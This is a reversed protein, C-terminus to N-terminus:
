ERNVLPSDANRMLYSPLNSAMANLQQADVLVEAAENLLAQEEPREFNPDHDPNQAEIQKEVEDWTKLPAQKKAVRRRNEIALRREELAQKENLRVKENLPSTNQAKVDALLKIQENLYRIDPNKAQRLKSAQELAGVKSKWDDVQQFRSPRITDWPM